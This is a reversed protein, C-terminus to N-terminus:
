LEADLKPKSVGVFDSPSIANWQLQVWDKTPLIADPATTALTGAWAAQSLSPPVRMTVPPHLFLIRFNNNDSAGRIPFAYYSNNVDAEWYYRQCLALEEGYSRHEFPTAVKGFELQAQAFDFEYTFDDFFTFDVQLCSSAGITKGSFSGVSGTVTFKQWETNITVKEAYSLGSSSGDYISYFRITPTLTKDARAWFSYTLTTNEFQRIDEVKQILQRTGSSNIGMRLFHKPNGEVELQGPAFDQRSHQTSGSSANIYWRDALFGSSSLTTGRQWVDFSGNILLNRRGAGILLRQDEITDARLMAQGAVGVPKDLESLKERINISPKTIKVTM